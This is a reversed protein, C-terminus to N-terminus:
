WEIPQDLINNIKSFPKSGFFGKNASFPSPHSSKIVYHKNKDILYEKEIANNGWLVFIIGKKELSITKIVNDTFIEWGINKHSLPRGKEVTLITNLLLVGKKSWSTLDGSNKEIKLDSKLEKFINKLSPPLRDNKVSFALGHAQNEGHYPDQGIMVVRVDKFSTLKFANFINEKKPFVIKSSYKLEIKELLNKFYEKNLEESLVYHWDNNTPFNM